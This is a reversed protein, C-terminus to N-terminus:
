LPQLRPKNQKRPYKTSIKSKKIIKLIYRNADIEPITYEFTEKLQCDLIKLANNAIQIEELYNSGKYAIIYGGNKLMPASYELIINLPAVARSTVIDFSERYEPRNAINEIRDTIVNLNNINKNTKVLEVFNTKKKVSDLATINANKLNIALPISPFGGGCGIDLIKASQNTKSYITNCINQIEAVPLLSDLIHKYIIDSDNTIATINHIKNYDKMMDIFDCLTSVNSDQINIKHNILVEKLQKDM